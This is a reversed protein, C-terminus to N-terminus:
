QKMVEVPLKQEWDNDSVLINGEIVGLNRVQSARWNDEKYYFVM